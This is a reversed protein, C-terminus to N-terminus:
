VRMPVINEQDNRSLDANNYTQDVFNRVANVLRQMDEYTEQRWTHYDSDQSLDTDVFMNDFKHNYWYGIDDAMPYRILIFPKNEPMCIYPANPHDGLNVHLENSPDPLLPMRIDGGITDRIAAATWRSQHPPVVLGLEKCLHIHMADSPEDHENLKDDYQDDFKNWAQCVLEWCQFCGKSGCKTCKSHGDLCHLEAWFSYTVGACTSLDLCRSCGQLDCAFCGKAGDKKWDTILHEVGKLTISLVM